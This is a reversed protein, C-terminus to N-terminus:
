RVTKTGFENGYLKKKVVSNKLNGDFYDKHIILKNKEGILFDKFDYNKEIDQIILKSSGFQKKKNFIAGALKVNHLNLKNVTISSSDKIALGIESNKVDIKKIYGNSNEGASLAKDGANYVVLLNGNIKAGSIDLCDNNINNCEIEGFELKGGDVDLGDSFSNRIMLNQIKSDSHILNIADESSSNLVQTNKISVKSNIINLGSYLIAQVIDPKSLNQIILNKSSFEGGIQVISGNIKKNGMIVVPDIKTGQFNLNGESFLISNNYFYIKNKQNFFLTQNKPIYTNKKIHIEESTVNSNKDVKLIDKINQLKGFIIPKYYSQIDNSKELNKMLHNGALDYFSVKKKNPECKKFEHSMRGVLMLEKSSNNSCLFKVKIPVNSTHSDFFVTKNIVNLKYDHKPKYYKTIQFNDFNKIKTRIFAARKYIKDKDFVFPALGVWTIKDVKSFDGYISENILTIQDDYKEFFNNLFKDSTIEKLTSFYNTVFEQRLENKNKYFFKLYWSKNRCLYICNPNDGLFDFIVFNDFKGAGVHADYGIPEFKATAPNYYFNVSKSLSGHYSTLLDTIAFYRAWKKWDFSDEYDFDKKRFSNIISYAYNLLELDNKKWYEESHAEFLHTPFIESTRDDANFIPGYRHNYREILEKSMGEEVVYLGLKKGNIKLNKFLYEISINGLEKQLKHFIYEHTYNRIIPKQLNFEEMGYFRDKGIIDVKYSLKNKDYFHIKRAGKLRIKVDFKEDSVVLKARSMKKIIKPNLPAKRNKILRQQEIIKSNKKDIFLNITELKNGLLNVKLGIFLAKAYDDFLNIDLGTAKKQSDNFKFFLTKLPYRHNLQSSYYFVVFIIILIIQFLVLFISFKKFYDLFKKIFNNNKKGENEKM